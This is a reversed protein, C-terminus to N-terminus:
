TATGSDPACIEGRNKAAFFDPSSKRPMAGGDSLVPSFKGSVTGPSVPSSFVEGADDRRPCTRLFTRRCRGAASHDPSFKGPMTGRSVPRSFVEGVGDQSLVVRSFKEGSKGAVFFRPSIQGLDKRRCFITSYPRRRVKARRPITTNLM